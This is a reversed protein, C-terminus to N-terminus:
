LYYSGLTDMGITKYCLYNQCTLIYQLTYQFYVYSHVSHIYTYIVRV